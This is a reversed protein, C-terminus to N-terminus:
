KKTIDFACVYIDGGDKVYTNDDVIKSTYGDHEINKQFDDIEQHVQHWSNNSMNKMTLNPFNFIYSNFDMNRYQKRFSPGLTAILHMKEMFSEPDFIDLYYNNNKLNEFFVFTIRITNAKKFQNFLDARCSIM